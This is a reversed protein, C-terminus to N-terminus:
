EVVEVPIGAHKEVEAAVDAGFVKGSELSYKPQYHVLLEDREFARKLKSKTMLREVSAENMKPEYYSLVNGGSNKAHYLAADAQKIWTELAGTGSQIQAYGLSITFRCLHDILSGLECELQMDTPLGSVDVTGAAWEPRPGLILFAVVACLVASLAYIGQQARDPGASAERAM